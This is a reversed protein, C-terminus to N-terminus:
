VSQTVTVPAQWARGDRSAWGLTQAGNPAMYGHERALKAAHALHSAGYRVTGLITNGIFVVVNNNQKSRVAELIVPRATKDGRSVNRGDPAYLDMEGTEDMEVWKYGDPITNWTAPDSEDFPRSEPATVTGFADPNAVLEREGDAMIPASEGDYMAGIRDDEAQQEREADMADYPDVTGFGAPSTTRLVADWKGEARMWAKFQPAIEEAWKEEAEREAADWTITVNTHGSAKADKVFMEVRNPDGNPIHAYEIRSGDHITAMVTAPTTHEPAENTETYIAAAADAHSVLASEYSADFCAYWQASHPAFGEETAADATNEHASNWADRSIEPRLTGLYEDAYYRTVYLRNAEQAAAYEAIEADLKIEEATRTEEMVDDISFPTPIAPDTGDIVTGDHHALIDREWDALLESTEVKFTESVGDEPGFVKNSGGQATIRANNGHVTLSVGNLLGMRRLSALTNERGTQVRVHGDLGYEIDGTLVAAQAKSLTINM